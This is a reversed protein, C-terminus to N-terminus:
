DPRRRGNRTGHRLHGHYTKRWDRVTSWSPNNKLHPAYKYLTAIQLFIFESGDEWEQVKLFERKREDDSIRDIWEWGLPTLHETQKRIQTVTLAKQRYLSRIKCLHIYLDDVTRGERVGKSLGEWDEPFHPKCTRDADENILTSDPASLYNIGGGTLNLPPTVAASSSKAAAATPGDASMGELAPIANQLHLMKELLRPRAPNDLPQRELDELIDRLQNRKKDINRQLLRPNELFHAMIPGTEALWVLRRTRCAGAGIKWQKLRKRLNYNLREQCPDAHFARSVQSPGCLVELTNFCIQREGDPVGNVGVRRVEFCVLSGSGLCM